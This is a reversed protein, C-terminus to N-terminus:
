EVPQVTFGNEELHIRISQHPDFRVRNSQNNAYNVFVLGGRAGTGFSIEEPEVAQGPVWERYLSVYGSEEPYDRRYQVRKQFWDAASTALLTNLLGSDYIVLAEVAVPHNQNIGPDVTATVTLSGGFFSPRNGSCGLLALLALGACVARPRRIM